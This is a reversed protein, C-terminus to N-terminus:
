KNNYLFYYEKGSPIKEAVEKYVSLIFKVDISTVRNEKLCWNIQM